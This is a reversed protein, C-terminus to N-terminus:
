FCLCLCFSFLSLYLYLYLYKYISNGHTPLLRMYELELNWRCLLIAGRRAM